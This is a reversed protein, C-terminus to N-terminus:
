ANGGGEWPRKLCHRDSVCMGFKGGGCTPLDCCVCREETLIPERYRQFGNRWIERLRQDKIPGEFDAGTYWTLDTLDVWRPARVDEPKDTGNHGLNDANPIM